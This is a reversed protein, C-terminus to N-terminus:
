KAAKPRICAAASARVCGDTCRARGDQDTAAAGRPTRSCWTDGQPERVCYGPGCMAINYMDFVIGGGPTSCFVEGNRDTLCASDPEGCVIRGEQTRACNQGQAWSDPSTFAVYLAACLLLSVLRM